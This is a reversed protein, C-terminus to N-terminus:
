AAFGHRAHRPCQLHKDDLAHVSRNRQVALDERIFVKPCPLDVRSKDLPEQLFVAFRLASANTRGASRLPANVLTPPTEDAADRPLAGSSHKGPVHNTARGATKCAIIRRGRRYAM